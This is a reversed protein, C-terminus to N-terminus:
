NFCCAFDTICWEWRNESCIGISERSPIKCLTKMSIALKKSLESVEGYTM